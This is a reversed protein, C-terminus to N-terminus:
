EENDLRNKSYGKEKAWKPNTEIRTHCPRCVALFNLIDTLLKGIRGAKHHIDTAPRGCVECNPHANLYEERKKRYDRLEKAQKNSVLNLKTRKLPKPPKTDHHKCKGRAWVPYSCGEENCIKRKM